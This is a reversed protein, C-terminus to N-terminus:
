TGLEHLPRPQGGQQGGPGQFQQYGFGQGTPSGAVVTSGGPSTSSNRDVGQGPVLAQGQPQAYYAGEPKHGEPSAPYAGQYGTPSQAWGPPPQHMATAPTGPTGAAPAPAAQSKRRRLIFIIAVAVLGIVAVGGVVGGAIAGANTKTGGGGGGGGSGGGEEEEDGGDEEGEDGEEPGRGDSAGPGAQITRSGIESSGTLPVPSFRRDSSQGSYATSAAQM